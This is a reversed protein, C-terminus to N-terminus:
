AIPRTSLHKCYKMWGIQVGGKDMAGPIGQAVKELYQDTSMMSLKKTIQQTSIYSNIEISPEIEGKTKKTTILIVGNTGRTGYIAAASGDKLVDIQEIDNPSVSNLDGPIGDIIVLPSANSKLTTVGRLLIQATSLPNADPQVVTLGAVKGRILGAADPSTVQVFNDAKVSSIASTLEEKRQTGYGIVVVEDLTKTDEKLVIQFSRKSEVPIEQSIYGVYSIQLVDKSEAQLAFKGDLDTITGVTPNNKLTVSAGIISEGNGETVTGTIRQQAFAIVSSSLLLLVFFLRICTHHRNM